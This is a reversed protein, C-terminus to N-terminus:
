VFYERNNIIIDDIKIFNTLFYTKNKCSVSDYNTSTIVGINREIGSIGLITDGIYVPIGLIDKVPKNNKIIRNM